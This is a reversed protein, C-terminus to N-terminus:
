LEIAVWEAPHVGDSPKEEYFAFPKGGLKGFRNAYDQMLQNTVGCFFRGQSGLTIEGDFAKVGTKDLFTMQVKVTSPYETMFQTTRAVSKSIIFYLQLGNDRWSSNGRFFFRRPKLADYLKCECSRENRPYRISSIMSEYAKVAPANVILAPCVSQFLSVWDVGFDAKDEFLYGGFGYHGVGLRYQKDEVHRKALDLIGKYVPNAREFMEMFFLMGYEAIPEEIRPCHPHEVYPNHHDFIAHMLEHAFVIGTMQPVKGPYRKKITGIMLHIEPITEGTKPDRIYYGLLEIEITYSDKGSARLRSIIGKIEEIKKELRRIRDWLKEIERRDTNPSNQLKNASEKLDRVEDELSQQEAELQALTVSVKRTYENDLYVKVNGTDELIDAPLFPAFGTFDHIKSLITEEEESLSGGYTGKQCFCQRDEKKDLVGIGRDEMDTWISM